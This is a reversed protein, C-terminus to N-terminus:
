RGYVNIGNVNDLTLTQGYIQSLGRLVKNATSRYVADGGRMRSISREHVGSARALEALTAPLNDILRQFDQTDTSM